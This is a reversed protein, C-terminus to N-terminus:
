YMADPLGCAADVPSKGLFPERGLLCDLVARQVPEIATYANIVCPMRPADFLYYPHGFSILASPIQHWFRAMAGRVSPQLRKWDLFINSQLLVSEQALLYLVLDTDTPSPPQNTDFARCEFGAENLWDVLHLPLPKQFAFGSREPDTVVVIRKHKQATLPLLHRVDKVLTVSAKACAAAVALHEPSRIISRVVELSPLLLSDLGLAAKLGLVRTLAEDVRDQTLRGDGLALHLEALDTEFDLPFLLMDCGCAIVDPALTSRDSWSTLGAMGTADSVILGNFGLEERLLQHTLLRSICAPRFQELGQVGHSKAYSPLAIHASMISMVGADIMGEYLKGFSAHWEDMSLPNITTVLHQDREDFGEGPWHKATAAISAKQFQEINIRANTEITTLDSGYSRTAVIASRHKANIDVVPTFTWNYGIAKAEAALVGVAAKALAPDNMAALGLQNPLRTAFPIAITGGEIDGSLLLPIDSGARASQILEGAVQWTRELDDGVFRTVGGAQMAAIRAVDAESEGHLAVNFLQRLKQDLTLTQLKSEVWAIATNDLSFPPLKLSHLLEINMVSTDIFVM